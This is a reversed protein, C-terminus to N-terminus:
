CDNRSARSFRPSPPASCEGAPAVCPCAGRWSSRVVPVPEFGVAGGAPLNFTESNLSCRVKLVVVESVRLLEAIERELSTVNKRLERALGTPEFFQL